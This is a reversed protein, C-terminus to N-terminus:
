QCPSSYPIYKLGKSMFHFGIIVGSELPTTFELNVYVHFLVNNQDGATELTKGDQRDQAAVSVANLIDVHDSIRLLRM